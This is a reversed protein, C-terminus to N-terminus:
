LVIGAVILVLTAASLSALRWAFEMRLSRHRGSVERHFAELLNMEVAPSAQLHKTAVRLRDLADELKTTEIMKMVCAACNGIYADILASKSGRLIWSDDNTRHRLDLLM